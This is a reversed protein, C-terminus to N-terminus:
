KRKHNSNGRSAMDTLVERIDKGREQKASVFSSDVFALKDIAAFLANYSEVNADIGRQRLKRFYKFALTPRGIISFGLMMSNVAARYAQPDEAIPTRCMKSFWRMANTMAGASCYTDIVAIYAEPEIGRGELRMKGFWDVARNLDGISAYGDVLLAITKQNPEVGDGKMKLYYEVATTMKGNKAYLEIMINYAVTNPVLKEKGVMQDWWAQAEIMQSDLLEANKYASLLASYSYINPALGNKEIAKFCSVAMSIDGTQAWGALLTTYTLVSPSTEMKKMLKVWKTAELMNGAKCYGQIINTYTVCTAVVGAAQMRDFWAIAEDVRGIKVSAAVMGNFIVDNPKIGSRNLESFLERCRRM